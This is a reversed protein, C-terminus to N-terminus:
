PKLKEPNPLGFIRYLFAFLENKLESFRPDNIVMRVYEPTWYGEHRGTYISIKTESYSIEFHLYPNPKYVSDGQITVQKGFYSGDGDFSIDRSDDFDRIFKIFEDIFFDENCPKTGEVSKWAKIYNEFEKM